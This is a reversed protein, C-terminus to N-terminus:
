TLFPSSKICFRLPWNKAEGAYDIGVRSKKGIDFSKNFVSTIFLDPTYLKAGSFTKDIGFSKTWRCPGKTLMKESKARPNNKFMTDIGELPELARIFVAEPFDKRNAVINCCYYMGYIVYVYLLGGNNYLIKTRPTFKGRYSHSALDKVGLYAETEVIKGALVKNNKRFVFVKGLLREALKDASCLFFKKKLKNKFSLKLKM